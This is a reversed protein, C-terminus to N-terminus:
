YPFDVRVAHGLHSRFHKFATRKQRPLLVGVNNTGGDVKLVAPCNRGTDRGNLFIRLVGTSRCRVDVRTQGDGARQAPYPIFGLVNRLILGGYSSLRALTTKVRYGERNLVLFFRRGPKGRLRLPAQGLIYGQYIVSVGKPATILDLDGPKRPGQRPVVVLDTPPPAVAPRDAPRADAPRRAPPAMATQPATALRRAVPRVSVATLAQMGARAAPPDSAAAMAPGAHAPPPGFPRNKQVYLIVAASVCIVTIAGMVVLAIRQRKSSSAAPAPKAPAGPAPPTQAGRQSAARLPEMSPLSVQSLGTSSLPGSPFRGGLVKGGPMRVLSDADDFDLDALEEAGTVQQLWLDVPKGSVFQAREILVEELAEMVQSARPYREEPKASLMKRLIPRLLKGEDGLPRGRKKSLCRNGQDDLDFIPRGVLAEFVVAGLAFLDSRHDTVGGQLHEPAQYFYEPAPAERLENKARALVAAVGFNLLRPKGQWTLMINEPSVGGHLVVGAGGPLRQAQELADLLEIAIRLTINWPMADGAAMLRNLLARLGIGDVFDSVLLHDEGVQQYGHLRVITPHELAAAVAADRELEQVFGPLAVAAPTFRQVVRGQVSAEANLDEALYIEALDDSALREVCRFSGLEFPVQSM